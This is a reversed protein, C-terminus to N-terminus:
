EITIYIGNRKDWAFIPINLLEEPLESINGKFLDKNNRTSVVISTAHKEKRTSLLEKLTPAEKMKDTLVINKDMNECCEKNIGIKTRQKMLQMNKMLFM